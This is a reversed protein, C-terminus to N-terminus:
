NVKLTEPDFYVPKDTPIRSVGKKKDAKTTTYNILNPDDQILKTIFSNISM